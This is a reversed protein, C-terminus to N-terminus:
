TASDAGYYACIGAILVKVLFPCGEKQNPSASLFYRNVVVAETDVCNNKKPPPIRVLTPV